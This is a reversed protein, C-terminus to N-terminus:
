RLEMCGRASPTCFDVDLPVIHGLIPAVKSEQSASSQRANGTDQLTIWADTVSTVPSASHILRRIKLVADESILRQEISPTEKAFGKYAM